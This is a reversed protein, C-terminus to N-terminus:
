QAFDQHSCVPGSLDIDLTTQVYRQMALVDILNAPAPDACHLMCVTAQSPLHGLLDSSGVRAMRYKCGGYAEPSIVGGCSALLLSWSLGPLSLFLM